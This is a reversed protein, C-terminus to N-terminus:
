SGKVCITKQLFLLEEQDQEGVYDFKQPNIKIESSVMVFAIRCTDSLRHFCRSFASEALSAHNGRMLSFDTQTDGM